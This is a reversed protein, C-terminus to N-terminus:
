QVHNRTNRRVYEAGLSTELLVMIVKLRPYRKKLQLFQYPSRPQMMCLIIDAERAPLIDDTALVINRERAKLWLVAYTDQWHTNFRHADEGSRLNGFLANGGFGPAPPIVSVRIPFSQEM